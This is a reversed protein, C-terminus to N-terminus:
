TRELHRPALSEFGAALNEPSPTDRALSGKEYLKEILRLGQRSLIWLISSPSPTSGEYSKERALTATQNRVM